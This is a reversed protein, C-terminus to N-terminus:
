QTKHTAPPMTQAISEDLLKQLKPEVSQNLASMAESLIQPWKVLVTQSHPDEYYAIMNEIDEDTFNRGFEAIIYPEMVKAFDIRSSLLESFKKFAKIKEAKEDSNLSPDREIMPIVAASAQDIEVKVSESMLKTFRGLELMKKIRAQREASIGQLDVNAEATCPGAPQGTISEDKLKAVYPDLAQRMVLVASQSSKPILLASKKGTPSKYFTAIYNIEEFTLYQDTIKNFATQAEVVLDSQHQAILERFRKMIKTTDATARAAAADPSVKPEKSYENTLARVLRKEIINATEQLSNAIRESTGTDAYIDSILARKKAETAPDTTSSSGSSDTSKQTEKDASTSTQALSATEVALGVVSALLTATIGFSIAKKLDILISM